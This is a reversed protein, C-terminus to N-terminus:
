DVRYTRTGPAGARYISVTFTGSARARQVVEDVTTEFLFDGARFGLRAMVGEADVVVLETASVPFLDLRLVAEAGGGHLAIVEEIAAADLRWTARGEYTAAEDLRHTITRMKVDLGRELRVSHGAADELVLADTVVSARLGRGLTESVGLNWTQWTATDAVTAFAPEGQVGFLRVTRERARYDAPQSGPVPSVLAGFEEDSIGLSTVATPNSCGAIVLAALAAIWTGRNM